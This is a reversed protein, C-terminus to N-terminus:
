GLLSLARTAEARVHEDADGGLAELMRRAESRAEAPADPARILRQLGHPLTERALPPLPEHFLRRLALIGHPHGVWQAVIEVILLRSAASAFRPYHEVLAAALRERQPASFRAWDSHLEGVIRFSDRLALVDDRLALDLLERALDDTIGGSEAASAADGFCFSSFGRVSKSMALADRADVARTLEQLFATEDNTMM